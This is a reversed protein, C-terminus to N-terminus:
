KKLSSCNLVIRRSKKKRNSYESLTRLFNEQYKENEDSKKNMYKFNETEIKFAEYDNKMLILIVSVSSQKIEPLWHFKSLENLTPLIIPYILKSNRTVFELFENKGWLSLITSIVNIHGSELLFRIKDFLTHITGKPIGNPFKVKGSIFYNLILDIFLDELAIEKLSNTKPWYKFIIKITFFLLETDKSIFVNICEFLHCCYLHLYHTTLLPLLAHKYFSIHDSKLPVIFGNVFSHTLILLENMGFHKDNENVVTQFINKIIERITSRKNVFNKYILHSIQLVATREQQDPSNFLGFFRSLFRNTLKKDLMDNMENNPISLLQNFIQYIIELYYMNSEHINISDGLLPVKVIPDISPFTRLINIKVMEFINDLIVLNINSNFDNEKLWELIQSLYEKKYYQYRNFTQTNYPKCCETIMDYLVIYFENKKVSKLNQLQNTRRPSNEELLFISTVSFWSNIKNLEDCVPQNVIYKLSKTLVKQPSENRRKSRKGIILSRKLRAPTTKKKPRLLKKIHEIDEETQSNM